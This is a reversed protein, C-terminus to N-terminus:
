LLPLALPPSIPGTGAGKITQFLFRPQTSPLLGTESWDNGGTLSHAHHIEYCLDKSKLSNKKLLIYAEAFVERSDHPAFILSSQLRPRGFAEKSAAFYKMFIHSLVTFQQGPHWQRETGWAHALEPNTMIFVQMCLFCSDIGSRRRFPQRELGRRWDRIQLNKETTVM